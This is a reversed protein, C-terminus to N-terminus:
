YQVHIVIHKREGRALELVADEYSPPGFGAKADRSTGWGEKPIGVFNTDFKKNGNEDHIVSVAFQGAPVNEFVLRVRRGKISAIKRAFARDPKNPFGSAARYLAAFVRGRDSHLGVIDVSVQGSSTAAPAASPQALALGSGLGCAALVIAATFSSSATRPALM